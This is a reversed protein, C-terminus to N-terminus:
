RDKTKKSKAVRSKTATNVENVRSTSRGSTRLVGRTTSTENAKRTARIAKVRETKKVPKATINTRKASVIKTSRSSRPVAPKTKVREIVDKYVHGGSGNTRHIRHRPAHAREARYVDKYVKSTTSFARRPNNVHTRYDDHARRCAACRGRVRVYVPDDHYGHCLYMPYRAWERVYFRAFGFGAFERWHARPIVSVYLERCALYPDGYVRYGFGGVFISRGYPEFDLPYRSGIAFVHAVGRGGLVSLGLDRGRFRYRDGGRVWASEFPSFPHVVHVFGYTDIVFVALYCDRAAHVTIVVDDYSQYVLGPRDVWVKIDASGTVVVPAHAQAVPVVTGIVAAAAVLAALLHLGGIGSNHKATSM